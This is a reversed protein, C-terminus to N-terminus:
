FTFFTLACVLLLGLRGSSIGTDKAHLMGFLIAVGEKVPHLDLVPNSSEGGVGGGGGELLIDGTGM